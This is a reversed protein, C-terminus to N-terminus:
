VANMFHMLHFILVLRGSQQFFGFALHRSQTLAKVGIETEAKVCTCRAGAEM